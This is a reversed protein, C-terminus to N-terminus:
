SQAEQRQEWLQRTIQAHGVHIATHELAHALAWGVTVEGLDRPSVRPAGLDEPTLEDLVGRTHALTRELRLKLTAADIGHARFEVKRNRGSLDRGVVDGIWYRQAGTAHAVLVCLSNMHPGPSWDLAEPDLGEIAQEMEAHLIQLRGLYGEFAKQM